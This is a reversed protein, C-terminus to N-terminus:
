YITKFFLIFFLNLGLVQKPDSAFCTPGYSSPQVSDAISFLSSIVKAAGIPHGIYFCFLRHNLLQLLFAPIIMCVKMPLAYFNCINLKQVAFHHSGLLKLSIEGSSVLGSLHEV